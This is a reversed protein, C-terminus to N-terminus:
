RPRSPRSAWDFGYRFLEVNPPLVVVVAIESKDMSEIHEAPVELGDVFLKGCPQESILGSRRDVSPIRHGLCVERAHSVPVYLWRLLDTNDDAKMRAEELQVGQVARFGRIVNPNVGLALTLWRELEENRVTVLLPDLRIPEPRVEIDLEYRGDDSVAILPSEMEFYGLRQVFLYYEGGGPARVVYRGLSDALVSSVIERGTDFLFVGAFPVPTEASTELVRGRIEQGGLPSCGLVALGVGVCIAAPWAGRM